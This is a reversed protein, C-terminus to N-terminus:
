TRAHGWVYKNKQGLSYEPASLSTNWFEPINNIKGKWAGKMLIHLDYTTSAGTLEDATVVDINNSSTNNVIHSHYHYGYDGHSHGGFDDLAVTSGDMSYDADYIGYLAIGDLGFGIIPPHSHDIYDFYNYLSMNNHTADASHGDAHYHLGMGQGVHIGNHTIEACKHASTLTNNLVPYLAVGDIMVGIASISTYNYVNYNLSTIYRASGDWNNNDSPNELFDYALTNLMSNETTTTSSTTHNTYTVSGNISAIEGYDLM